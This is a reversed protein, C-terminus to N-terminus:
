SELWIYLIAGTGALNAYVKSGFPVGLERLNFFESDGTVAAMDLLPTGLGDADNTLNATAAASGGVLMVAWVIAPVAVVAGAAAKRVPVGYVAHSTSM